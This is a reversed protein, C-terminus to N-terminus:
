AHITPELKEKRGFDCEMLTSSPARSKAMGIVVVLLGLGNATLTLLFVSTRESGSMSLGSAYVNGECDTIELTAGNWGDGFSDVLHLDYGESCPEPYTSVTGAGGEMYAEGGGDFLTWAIEGDWNGGGATIEYGARPKKAETWPFIPDSKLSPVM